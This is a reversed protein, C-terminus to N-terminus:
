HQEFGDRSPHAYYKYTKYQSPLPAASNVQVLALYADDPGCGNNCVYYTFYRDTWGSNELYGCDILTTAQVTSNMRPRYGCSAKVYGGLPTDSFSLSPYDVKARHAAFALADAKAKAQTWRTEAASNRLQITVFVALIGVITAAVLLEVLTFGKDNRM